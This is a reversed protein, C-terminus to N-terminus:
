DAVIVGCAIRDGAHGSPQTAYDDPMAHILVAAGDEDFLRNDLALFTDLLEIAVTGDAAVTINTMDGAHPGADVLFGHEAGTPNYHGGASDFPPECAGTTHIHFGHPGPPLGQLEGQIMVGAPTSNLVLTGLAAGEASTMAAQATKVQDDQALAPVASLLALALGARMLHM